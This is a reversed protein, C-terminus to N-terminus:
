ARKLPIVNTPQFDKPIFTFETVGLWGHVVGKEDRIPIMVSGQGAGKTRYGISFREAVDPCLGIAEIAEHRCDLGSLTQLKENSEPKKVKEQPVTSLSQAIFAAADKPSEKRIHAALAICDGGKSDSFCFYVGREPTVVLARDGGTACAPCESRLQKQSPKMKLGLLSVVQEITVSEKLANFDIFPM